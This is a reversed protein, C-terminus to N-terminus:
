CNVRIKRAFNYRDMEHLCTTIQEIKLFELKLGVDEWLRCRMERGEKIAFNRFIPM